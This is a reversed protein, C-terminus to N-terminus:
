SIAKVLGIRLRCYDVKLRPNSTSGTGSFTGIDFDVRATYSRGAALNFSYVPQHFILTSFGEMGGIFAVAVNSYSAGGNTSFQPNITLTNLRLSESKIQTNSGIAYRLNLRVDVQYVIYYNGTGSPPETWSVQAFRTNNVSSSSSGVIEGSGFGQAVNPNFIANDAVTRTNVPTINSFSTGSTYRHVEGSAVTWHVDNVAIGDTGLYYVNNYM